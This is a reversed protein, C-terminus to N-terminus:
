PEGQSAIYEYIATNFIMMKAILGAIEKQETESTRHRGMEKKVINDLVSKNIDGTMNSIRTNINRLIGFYLKETNTM